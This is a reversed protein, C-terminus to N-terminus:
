TERRLLCKIIEGLFEPKDYPLGHGADPILESRLLPNLSLLEAAADVSVVGNSAIILLTPAGISCILECYDPNPPKLVEFANLSTQLRADTMLEIIEASRTHHRLRAEVLADSKTMELFQRHEEAIDSEYVKLQWEPSIFTPDVLVVGLIAPGLQSAVVAATMGSMSHGLLVPKNLELAKVPGLVDYAHQRYLYGKSPASSRGHERADPMVVDFDDELSRALPSLCPGSGMLGHLAVLSPKDGGTRLYRMEISNAKCVGSEWKAASPEDYKM